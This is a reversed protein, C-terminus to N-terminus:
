NGDEPNIDYRSFLRLTNFRYNDIKPKTPFGRMKQTRHTCFNYLLQETLRMIIESRDPRVFLDFLDNRYLM